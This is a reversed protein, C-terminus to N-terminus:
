LYGSQHLREIVENYGFAFELQFSEKYSVWRLESVESAEPNLEGSINGLFVYTRLNNHFHNFLLKKIKFDFNTEEKIGRVIADEPKESDEITENPPTWKNKEVKEQMSRKVLLIKKDRIIIGATFEM